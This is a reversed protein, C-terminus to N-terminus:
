AIKRSKYKKGKHALSIKLRTKPSVIRGLRRLRQEETIKRGLNWKNGMNKQRIKEKTEESMIRKVTNKRIKAAESMRKRSEDSTHSKAIKMRAISEASCKRGLHNGAIKCINFFPNYSDIFYQEIKLLDEKECSLLISYQLDIKGYKNYHNQLKPSHSKNLELREKHLRWRHYIDVSSGIYIREPKIKSQIKYIGCYIM